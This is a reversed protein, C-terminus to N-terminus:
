RARASDPRAERGGARGARRARRHGDPLLRGRRAPAHAPRARRGRDDHLRSRPAARRQRLLDAHDRLLVGGGISSARARDPERRATPDGARSTSGRRRRGRPGARSRRGAERGAAWGSLLVAAARLRRLGSGASTSATAPRKPARPRRRAAPAVAAPPRGSPAPRGARPPGPGGRPPRGGGRARGLRGPGPSPRPVPARRGRAIPQRRARRLCAADPASRRTRAPNPRRTPAPSSAPEGATAPPPAPSPPAPPQAPPPVAASPPPEAAPPPPRRFSHSRITTPTAAAPTACASTPPPAARGLAARQHASRASRRGPRSTSGRRVSVSSLHLYTNDFRRRRHAGRRDPGSSAATGRLPSAKPRPSWKLARGRAPSTSGATSAPPMHTTATGTHRSSRVGLPWIWGGRGTPM